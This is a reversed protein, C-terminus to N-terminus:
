KPAPLGYIETMARGIASETAEALIEEQRPLTQEFYETMMTEQVDLLRKGIPTEYLRILDAVGSEGLYKYHVAVLADIEAAYLDPLYPEAEERLIRMIEALAEEPVGPISLSPTAEGALGLAHRQMEPTYLAEMVVRLGLPDDAQPEQAAASSAMLFSVTGVFAGACSAM